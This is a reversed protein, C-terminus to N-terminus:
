GLEQSISSYFNNGTKIGRHHENPHAKLGRDPLTVHSLVQAGDASLLAGVDFDIWVVRCMM